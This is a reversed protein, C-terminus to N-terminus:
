YRVIEAVREGECTKNGRETHCFTIAIGAVQDLLTPDTEIFLFDAIGECLDGAFVKGALDKANAFVLESLQDLALRLNDFPVAQRIAEDIFGLPHERM